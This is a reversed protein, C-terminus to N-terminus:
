AIKDMKNLAAQYEPENLNDGLEQDLAMELKAKNPNRGLSIQELATCMTENLEDTIKGTNDDFMGIRFLTYDDPHKGIPHEADQAIDTFSRKAEADAQTFFPRSYLGSAADFISYMNLKM